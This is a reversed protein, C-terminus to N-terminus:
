PLLIVKGPVARSEALAMAEPASTLPLRAAIQATLVGDALLGLVTTLDAGLRARFAAPRLRRGAWV